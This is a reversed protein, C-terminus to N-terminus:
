LNPPPGTREAEEQHRWRRTLHFLGEAPGSLAYITLGFFLSVHPFTAVVVLVLVAGVLLDFPRRGKWGANKFDRYPVNSVMLFALVYALISVALAPPAEFLNFEEVLMVASAVLGAAAPIPFGTFRGKDASEVQVNFRALRLAGCIVFLFVGVWGIRGYPRLAWTYLLAAPAVGFAMLDALSDYEMGFRTSSSTLRAIRGDLGDLIMAILVAAGARYHFGNVAALFAYIGAVMAATTFLSPVLLVGRRVQEPRRRMRYRRRGM